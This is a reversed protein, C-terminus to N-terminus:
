NASTWQPAYPSTEMVHQRLKRGYAADWFDYYRRAGWTMMNFVPTDFVIRRAFSSRFVIELFSVANHHATQFQTRHADITEGAVTIREPAATGLGHQECLMLHEILRPDFGM